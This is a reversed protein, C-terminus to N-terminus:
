VAGVQEGATARNSHLKNVLAKIADKDKGQIRANVIADVEYGVWAVAREGIRIPRPFQGLRVAGYITSNSKHGTKTKVQQIRLIETNIKLITSSM